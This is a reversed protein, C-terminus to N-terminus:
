DNKSDLCVDLVAKEIQDKIVIDSTLLLLKQQGKMGRGFISVVNPIEHKRLDRLEIPSFGALGSHGSFFIQGLPHEGDDFHKETHWWIFRHGQIVAFIRFWDWQKGDREVSTSHVKLELIGHWKSSWLKTLRAARKKNALIEREREVVRRTEWFYYRRLEENTPISYFFNKIRTSIPEPFEEKKDTTELVPKIKEEVLKSRNGNFATMFTVVYQGLGACLILLRTPILALLFWLIAMCLLIFSSKEPCSFNLANRFMDMMDLLSGLQNQLYQVNGTVGRVTNFTSISTGIIGVRTDQSFSASRIMEEAVVFSTEKDIDTTNDDPFTIKVELFIMPDDKLTSKKDTKNSLSLDLKSDLEPNPHLGSLKDKSLEDQQIEILARTGKKLVKFWGKIEKMKIIKELPIVVEGVTDDFLRLRNLVDTFRVQFVIAGMSSEWPLLEIPLKEGDHGNGDLPEGLAAIPQLLPFHLMLNNSMNQIGPEDNDHSVPEVHSNTKTLFNNSPLLQKLGMLEDSEHMKDWVPSFTVGSSETAGIHYASKSTADYKVISSKLTEDAFYLPYWIVSSELIGPIGSETSL